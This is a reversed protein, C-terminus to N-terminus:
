DPGPVCTREIVLLHEINETSHLLPQLSLYINPHCRLSCNVYKNRLSLCYSHPRASITDDTHKLTAGEEWVGAGQDAPRSRCALVGGLVRGINM